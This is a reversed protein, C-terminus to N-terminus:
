KVLVDSIEKTLKVINTKGHKELEIVGRDELRRLIRHSKLKGVGEIRSVESQFVKGRSELIKQVIKKEDKNLFKILTNAILEADKKKDELKSTMFFFVMAGIVIGSLIFVPVLQNMLNIREEHKCVDGVMCVDPNTEALIAPLYIVLAAICILVIIGVLAKKNSFDIMLEM